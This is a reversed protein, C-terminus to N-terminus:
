SVALDCLTFYSSSSENENGKSYPTGCPKNSPCKSKTKYM